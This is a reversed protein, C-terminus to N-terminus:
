QKRLSAWVVFSLMLIILFTLFLQKSLLNNEIFYFIAQTEGESVSHHSTCPLLSLDDAQPVLHYHAGLQETGDDENDGQCSVREGFGTGLSFLSFFSSILFEHIVYVSIVIFCAVNGFQELTFGREIITSAM